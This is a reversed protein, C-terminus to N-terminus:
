FFLVPSLIRYVNINEVLQITESSLFEISLVRGRKADREKQCDNCLRARGDTRSSHFKVKDEPVYHKKGNCFIFGPKVPMQSRTKKGKHVRHFAGSNNVALECM